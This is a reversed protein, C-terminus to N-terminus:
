APAQTDLVFRPLPVGQADVAVGAVMDMDGIREADAGFVLSAKSIGALPLKLYAGPGSVILDAGNDSTAKGLVSDPGQLNLATWFDDEEIGLPQFSAVPKLSKFTVDYILGDSAKDTTALGFVVKVGAVTAVSEGGNFLETKVDYTQAFLAAPDYHPHELENDERLFLRNPADAAVGAKGCAVFNLDGSFIQAGASFVLDCLKSLAVGYLTTQKQTTDLPQILITNDQMTGAAGKAGPVLAGRLTRGPTLLAQGFTVALDRFLGLPAFSLVPKIGSRITKVAGAFAAELDKTALGADLTVDGVSLYHATKGGTNYTIEAPGRSILYPNPVPPM